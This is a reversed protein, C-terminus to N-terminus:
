ARETRAHHDHLFKALQERFSEDREGRHGIVVAHAFLKQQIDTPLEAWVHITAAGIIPAFRAASDPRAHRDGPRFAPCPPRNGRGTPHAFARSTRRLSAFASAGHGGVAM